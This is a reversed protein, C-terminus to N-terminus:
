EVLQAKSAIKRTGKGTCNSEVSSNGSFAVQDAVIQTCGAGTTVGGTYNVVATPAYVAGTITQSSGGNFNETASPANRDVYFAIGSLAGTTPATANVTAGGNITVTGFSSGTSSTLILTANSLNLTAGGAVDLSGGDLIFTGNSLSLTSGANLKIGGCVVKIGGGADVSKNGHLPSWNNYDCGAYAPIAVNAYPDAVPSAGTVPVPTSVTTLSGGNSTSLGGVISASDATISAGGSVTFASSSRSNDALGCKVLNVNTTGGGSIAGSVSNNLALVCDDGSGPVAVARASVVPNAVLYLNSFLRTQPQQIIVEVANTISTYNGSAPPQNVTVITSNSQDVFGDIATVAKAQKSYNTGALVASFAGADAAGQMTRKTVYWSSGETALGALGVLAILVLGVVMASAGSRDDRLRRALHLLRQPSHQNRIETM